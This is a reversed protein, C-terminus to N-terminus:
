RGNNLKEAKSMPNSVKYTKVEIIYKGTIGRYFLILPVLVFVSSYIKWFMDYSVETQFSTVWGNEICVSCLITVILCQALLLFVDKIILIVSCVKEQKTLHNM